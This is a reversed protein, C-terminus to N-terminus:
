DFYSSDLLRVYGGFWDIEYEWLPAQDRPDWFPSHGCMISHDHVALMMYVKPPFSM